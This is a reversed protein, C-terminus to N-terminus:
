ASARQGGARRGEKGRGAPRTGLPALAPAHAHAHADSSLHIPMRSLRDAYSELRLVTGRLGPLPAQNGTRTEVNVNRSTPRSNREGDGHRLQSNLFASSGVKFEIVVILNRALLVIDLRRQLRLMSVWPVLVVADCARRDRSSVGFHM